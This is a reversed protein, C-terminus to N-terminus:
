PDDGALVEPAASDSFEAYGNSQPLLLDQM